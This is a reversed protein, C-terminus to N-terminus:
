CGAVSNTTPAYLWGALNTLLVKVPTNQSFLAVSQKSPLSFTPNLFLGASKAGNDSYAMEPQKHSEWYDPKLAVTKPLNCLDQQM